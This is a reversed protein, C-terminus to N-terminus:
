VLLGFLTAAGLALLRRWTLGLTLKSPLRDSTWRSALRTQADAPLLTIQHSTGGVTPRFVGTEMDLQGSGSVDIRFFVVEDRATVAIVSGRAEVKAVPSSLRPAAEEIAEMLLNAALIKPDIM